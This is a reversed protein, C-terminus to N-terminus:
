AARAGELSKVQKVRDELVDVGLYRFV